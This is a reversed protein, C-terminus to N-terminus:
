HLLFRARVRWGGDSRPGIEATGRHLAVRERVGQLGYGAGSEGHHRPRGNDVTELEVWRQGGSRGARLTLVAASATSHRRINTLSEQATRYVSLALPASVEELAGPVDEVRTFDVELGFTRQSRALADLDALGPEPHRGENEQPYEDLTGSRLVGLLGRM